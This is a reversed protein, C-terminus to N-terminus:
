NFKIMKVTVLNTMVEPEEEEHKKNCTSKLYKIVPLILASRIGEKKKLVELVRAQCQSSKLKYRHDWFCTMGLSTNM